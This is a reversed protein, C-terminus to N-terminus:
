EVKEGPASRSSFIGVLLATVVGTTVAILVVLLIGIWMSETRRIIARAFAGGVAIGFAGAIRRLRRARTVRGRLDEPSEEDISM